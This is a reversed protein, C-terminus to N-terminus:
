KTTQEKKWSRGAQTIPFAIGHEVCVSACEQCAKADRTGSDQRRTGTFLIANSLKRPGGLPHLYQQQTLLRNQSQEHRNEASM